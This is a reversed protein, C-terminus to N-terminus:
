EGAEEEYYARLEPYVPSTMTVFEILREADAAMSTTTATSVRSDKPEM